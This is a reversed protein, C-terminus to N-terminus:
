PEEAAIVSRTSTTAPNEMSPDISSATEFYGQAEYLSLKKLRRGVYWMIIIPIILLAAALVFIFGHFIPRTLPYLSNFLISAFLTCLDEMIAVFAFMKGQESPSVLKSLLARAAPITFFSFIAVVPVAFSMYSNYSLGYLALGAMRSIMGIICITTDPLKFKQLLPMVLLLSCAGLGYKIGFYYSYTQYDWKLPTDREFL